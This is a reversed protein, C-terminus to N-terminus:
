TFKTNDHTGFFGLLERIGRWRGLDEAFARRCVVDEVKAKPLDESMAHHDESNRNEM